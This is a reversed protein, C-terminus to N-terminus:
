DPAALLWRGTVLVADSLRSPVPMTDAPRPPVALGPLDLLDHTEDTVVLELRADAATTFAVTVGEQMPGFVM